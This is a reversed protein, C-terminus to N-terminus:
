DTSGTDSDHIYYTSGTFNVEQTEKVLEKWYADLSVKTFFDLVDM